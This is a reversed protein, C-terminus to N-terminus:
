RRKAALRRSGLLIGAIALLGLGDGGASCGGECPPGDRQIDGLDADCSTAIMTSAVDALTADAAFCEVDFSPGFPITRDIVLVGDVAIVAVVRQTGIANDFIVGPTAAFTAEGVPISAGFAQTVDLTIQPAEISGEITVVTAEIVATTGCYDEACTPLPPCAAAHGAMLFSALVGLFLKM